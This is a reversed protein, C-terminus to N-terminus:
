APVPEEVFLHDTHWCLMIVLWWVYVAAYSNFEEELMLGHAMDNRMNHGFQEVLIGRLDFMIDPGFADDAEKRWIINNIERESQTGDPELTSTIGGNQQIVFRIAAEIQPILLHMAVAWDGFFGAQIGRLVLIEHGPPIFPKGLLLFELDRLRIDHEEVIAVRIPEIWLIAATPWVCERALRLRNKMIIEESPEDLGTSPIIDAVLGSNTQQSSSILRVFIHDNLQKETAARHEASNTPPQFTALTIIAEKLSKGHVQGVAQAQLHKQKDIFAPDADMHDVTARGLSKLSNKQLELLRKHVTERREVSANATRLAMLARMMHGSASMACSQACNEAALVLAEAASLRCREYGSDDKALYYVRAAVGWSQEANGFDGNREFLKALTEALLGHVTPIAAKHGCLITILKVCTLHASSENALQHIRTIIATLVNKHLSKGFGIKAALQAARDFESTDTLSSPDASAGCELYAGVAIAGAEHCKKRCEWVVDGVRSKLFSNQLQPLIGHLADLDCPALDEGMLSRTDPGNMNRWWPGFPNGRSDFCPLFYCVTMLLAFVAEGKEDGKSSCESGLACFKEGLERRKFNVVNDQWPRSLIDSATIGFGSIPSHVM